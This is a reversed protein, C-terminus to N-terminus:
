FSRWISTSHILYGGLKSFQVRWGSCEFHWSLFSSTVAQQQVCRLCYTQKNENISKMLVPSDTVEINANRESDPEDFRLVKVQDNERVVAYQSLRRKRDLTKWVKLLCELMAENTTTKTSVIHLM